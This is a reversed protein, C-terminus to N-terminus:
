NLLEDFQRGDPSFEAGLNFINKFVGQVEKIHNGIAIKGGLKSKLYPAATLHDAHAHTELIWEVVLRNERV